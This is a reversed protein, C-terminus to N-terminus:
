LGKGPSQCTQISPGGKSLHVLPQQHVSSTLFNEPYRSPRGVTLLSPTTVTLLRSTSAPFPLLTMRIVRFFQASRWPPTHHLCGSLPTPPTSILSLLAELLSSCTLIPFSNV